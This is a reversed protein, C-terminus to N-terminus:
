HTNKTDSIADLYNLRKAVEERQSNKLPKVYGLQGLEVDHGQIALILAHYFAKHELLFEADTLRIGVGDCSDALWFYIISDANVLRKTESSKEYIEIWM